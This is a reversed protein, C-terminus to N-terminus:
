RGLGPSFRAVLEHRAGPYTLFVHTIPTGAQWTRREVTLGAEGRQAALLGAVREDLVAARIRHEAQTWPIHSLLWTGPPEDAFDAEGADPVHALNILRDELVFPLQDAYHVAEFVLVPTGDAVSLREADAREASRTKKLLTEYRYARGSAAIEAKIDQIELISEQSHPQAVFSGSRRRREILGAEALASLAKNVTMRSCGYHAVLEHESPVRHGPAWEGSVIRAELDGRIELYRPLGDAKTVM